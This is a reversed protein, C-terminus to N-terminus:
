TANGSLICKSLTPSRENGIGGGFDVQGDEM